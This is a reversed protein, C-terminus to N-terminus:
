SYKLLTIDYFYVLRGTFYEYDTDSRLQVEM